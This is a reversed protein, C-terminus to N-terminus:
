RGRRSLRHVEVGVARAAAVVFDHHAAGEGVDAQAVLEHGLAFARVGAVQGVALLHGDEIGGLLVAGLANRQHHDGALFVAGARRAVPRGLARQQQAHAGHDGFAELADVAGVQDAHANQRQLEEVLLGGFGVAEGAFLREVDNAQGVHQVVERGAPRDLHQAVLASPVMVSNSAVTRM